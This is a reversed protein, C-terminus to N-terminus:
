PTLFLSQLFVSSVICLGVSVPGPTQINIWREIQTSIVSKETEKKLRKRKLHEAECEKCVQEREPLLAKRGMKTKTKENESTNGDRQKNPFIASTSISLDGSLLCSGPSRHTADRRLVSHWFSRV